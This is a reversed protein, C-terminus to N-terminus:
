DEYEDDYDAEDELAVKISKLTSSIDSNLPTERHIHKAQHSVSADQAEFRALDETPHHHRSRRRHWRQESKPAWPDRFHIYPHLAKPNLM